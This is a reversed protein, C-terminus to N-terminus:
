CTKPLQVLDFAASANDDGLEQLKSVINRSRMTRSLASTKQLHAPWPYHRIGASILTPMGSGRAAAALRIEVRSHPSLAEAVILIGKYGEPSLPYEKCDAAM